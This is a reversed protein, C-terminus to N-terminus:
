KKESNEKNLFQDIEDDTLFRIPRISKNKGNKYVFNQVDELCNNCLLSFLNEKM